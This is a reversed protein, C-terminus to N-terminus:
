SGLLHAAHLRASLPRRQHRRTHGQTHAHTHELHKDVVVYIEMM